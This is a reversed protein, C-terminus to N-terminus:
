ICVPPQYQKQLWIITITIMINIVATVTMIVCLKEKSLEVPFRFKAEQM